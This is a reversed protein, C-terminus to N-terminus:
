TTPLEKGFQFPAVWFCIKVTEPSSSLSVFGIADVPPPVVRHHPLSGLSGRERELVRPKPGPRFIAVSLYSGNLRRLPCAPTPSAAFYILNEPKGVLAVKVM